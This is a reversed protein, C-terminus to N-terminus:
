APSATERPPATEKVFCIATEHLRTLEGRDAFTRAFKLLDCCQLFDALLEQYESALKPSHQAESLFEETSRKPAALDFRVEIYRRIIASSEIAYPRSQESDILAFLRELEALANAHAKALADAHAHASVRSRLKRIIWWTLLFLVLSALIPWYNLRFPEPAELLRLDDILEAPPNVPVLTTRSNRPAHADRTNTEADRRFSSESGDSNFFDGPM